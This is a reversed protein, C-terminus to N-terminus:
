QVVGRTVFRGSLPQFITFSNSGFSAKCDLFPIMEGILTVTVDFYQAGSGGIDHCSKSPTISPTDM